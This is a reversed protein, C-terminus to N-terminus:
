TGESQIWWRSLEPVLHQYGEAFALNYLKACRAPDPNPIAFDANLHGSQMTIAYLICRMRDPIEIAM